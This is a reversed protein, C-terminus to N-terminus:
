QLTNFNINDTGLHVRESIEIRSFIKITTDFTKKCVTYPYGHTKGPGVTRIEGM